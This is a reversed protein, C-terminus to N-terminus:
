VGGELFEEALRAAAPRTLKVLRQAAETPSPGLVLAQRSRRCVRRGKANEPRPAFAHCASQSSLTLHTQTLILGPIPGCAKHKWKGPNWKPYRNNVWLWIHVATSSLVALAIYWSVINAEKTPGTSPRRKPVGSNQLSLTSANLVSGVEKKSNFALFHKFCLLRGIKQARNLQRAGVQKWSSRLSGSPLFGSNQSRALPGGFGGLM